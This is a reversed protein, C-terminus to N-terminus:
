ILVGETERVFTYGGATSKMDKYLVRYVNKVPINYKEAIEKPSSCTGIYNKNNYIKIIGKSKNYQRLVNENIISQPTEPSYSWIYGGSSQQKNNLAASIVCTSINMSKAAVIIGKWEQVFEGNLTFQYITRWRDERISINIAYNKNEDYDKENIFIRKGLRSVQGRVNNAVSREKLKYHKAAAGISSFRNLFKGNVSLVIVPINNENNDGGNSGNVLNYGLKKYQYIWFIEWFKWDEEWVEDIKVIKIKHGNKLERRIWNVKHNKESMRTRIHGNLRENLSQVTKGIYRINELDRSSVLGYIIATNEM